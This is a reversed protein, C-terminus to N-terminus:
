MYIDSFEINVKEVNYNNGIIDFNIDNSQNPLVTCPIEVTFQSGGGLKSSVSINGGQM